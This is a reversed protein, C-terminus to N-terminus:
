HAELLKRDGTIDCRYESPWCGETVATVDEFSVTVALRIADFSAKSPDCDDCIRTQVAQQTPWYLASL